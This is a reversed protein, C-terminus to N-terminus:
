PRLKALLQDIAESPLAALAEALEIVQDVPQPEPDPVEIQEVINHLPHNHSSDCNECYGGDGYTTIIM